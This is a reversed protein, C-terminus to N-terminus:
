DFMGNIEETSIPEYVPLADIADNVAKIDADTAVAHQVRKGNEVVEVKVVSECSNLVTAGKSGGIELVPMLGSEANDKEYYLGEYTKVTGLNIGMSSITDGENLVITKRQEGKYTFPTYKAYDGVEQFKVDAEEKTYYTEPNFIDTLALEIPEEKGDENFTIVLKGDKIEVKDIMGDKIFDAADVEGLTTEGHKFLIKKDAYEVGDFCKEVDVKLLADAAANEGVAEAVLSKIKEVLLELGTKDLYKFEAM